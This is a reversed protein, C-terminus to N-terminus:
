TFSRRQPRLSPRLARRSPCLPQRTSLRRPRQSRSRLSPRPRAPPQRFPRLQRPQRPLRPRPAPAAPWRDPPSRPQSSVWGLGECPRCALGVGANAVVDVPDITIATTVRQDCVGWLRAPTSLLFAAPTRRLVAAVLLYGSPTAGSLVPHALTRTRGGSSSKPPSRAWCLALEAVRRLAAGQHSLERLKSLRLRHAQDAGAIGPM